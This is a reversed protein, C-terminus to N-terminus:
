ARSLVSQSTIDSRREIGYNKIKDIDVGGKKAMNEVAHLMLGGGFSILGGIVTKNLISGQTEHYADRKAMKALHRYSAYFVALQEKTLLNTNLERSKIRGLPVNVMPTVTFEFPRGSSYSNSLRNVLAVTDMLDEETEGDQGVQLTSAPRWYNATEVYVGNWVIEEWTGDPGIRLPLTKNPMHKKALADSGTEVGTQIGIWNDPGGRLIKTLKEMMEPYAAPISIRGHTPNATRVGQVSMVESFLRIMEDENPVFMPGHKYGWVEDTQLWANDQGSRMNVRIEEKINEISYYRLPRLTVECFDCGIGCGRMIEVLGKVSPNVIPVIDSIKPYASTRSLFRDDQVSVRHFKDDYTTFGRAFINRDISGEEIQTFLPVAVDDVEGQFAYDIGYKDMGERMITLEWVGPGGVVLKAKTGKRLETIRTLLADWEKWVWAYLEGGFLAYYSMTLPGLGFPDMTSITIISTKSDIHDALFNEQVVVVDKPTFATRLSAEM